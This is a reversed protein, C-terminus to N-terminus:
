EKNRRGIWDLFREQMLMQQEMSKLMMRQSGILNSMMGPLNEVEEANSLEQSSPHPTEPNDSAGKEPNGSSASEDASPERAETAKEEAPDATLPLEPHYYMNDNGMVLWNVQLNPFVRLIKQILELNPRNRGTVIHSVVASSTDIRQAFRNNSEGLEAILEQIRENIPEM